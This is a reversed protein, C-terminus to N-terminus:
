RMFVVIYDSHGQDNFIEELQSLQCSEDAITDIKDM